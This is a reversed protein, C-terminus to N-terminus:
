CFCQFDFYLLYQPFGESLGAEIFDCFEDFLSILPFSAVDPVNYHLYVFQEPFLVVEFGTNAPILIRKVNHKQLAAEDRGAEESGLWLGPVIEQAFDM